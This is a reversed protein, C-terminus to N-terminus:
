NGSFDNGMDVQQPSEENRGYLLKLQEEKEEVRKLVTQNESRLTELANRHEKIQKKLKM